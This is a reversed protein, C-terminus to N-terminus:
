RSTNSAAKRSGTSQVEPAHSPGQTAPIRIEKKRFLRIVNYVGQYISRFLMRLLTNQKEGRLGIVITLLMNPKHTYLDELTNFVPNFRTQIYKFIDARATAPYASTYNQFRDSPQTKDFQCKLVQYEFHHEKSPVMMGFENVFSSKRIAQSNMCVITKRVFKRILVFSLESGDLFEVLIKKRFFLPFVVLEKVLPHNICYNIFNKETIRDALLEIAPTDTLLKSPPGTHNLFVLSLQPTARAFPEFFDTRNISM